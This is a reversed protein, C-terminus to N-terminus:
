ASIEKYPDNAKRAKLGRMTRILSQPGAVTMGRENLIGFAQKGVDIADEVSGAIALAEIAAAEWDEQERRNTPKVFGAFKLFGDIFQLEDILIHETVHSSYTPTGHKSSGQIYGQISGQTSGQIKVGVQPPEMNKSGVNLVEGDYRRPDTWKHIIIRQCRQDQECTIYGDIELQRRQERLTRIPMELEAAEASDVWEIVAGEEWNARDLIHLYLWIRIGLENRHKPELLGRKVKIWTKKM